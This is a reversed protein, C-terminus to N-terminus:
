RARLPRNHIPSHRGGGPGPRLQQLARHGHVRRQTEHQLPLDLPLKRGSHELLRRERLRPRDAAVAPPRDPLRSTGTRDTNRRRHIQQAVRTRRFPQRRVFPTATPPSWLNRRKRHHGATYSKRFTTPRRGPEYDQGYARTLSAPMPTASWVTTSLAWAPTPSLPPCLLFGVGNRRPTEVVFQRFCSRSPGLSGLSPNADRSPCPSITLSVAWPPERVM